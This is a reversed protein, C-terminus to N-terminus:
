PSGHGGFVWVPGAGKPDRVYDSVVDAHAEGGAHARLRVILEERSTAHVALREDAHSRRVALTHAVDDLPTSAGAGALWGALRAATAELADTSRASLLFTRRREPDLARVQSAIAPAQEVIAHANTGGVGYSCVAAIRPGDQLPWATTETPVFLRGASAEIAAPLKTFHLSAPVEGRHVALVAKLLGVMGAASETHGVNTKVSGLACHGDGDGYVTTLSTLEVLDGARTGTGHAEIMGVTAPDVDARRLAARFVDQQAQGSPLTFRSSNGDHNVATGRLVALIRDGDRQADQLRKLVIVVAGEARVYGDAEHDFSRCQGSPSLVGTENFAALVRPSLLLNVAGALAMDCEGLQLSQCALHAAVLGSSCATDLAMSPGSLGLAHSVRGAATAFANGTMLYPGGGAALRTAYAAHDPNSMGAYVGTHSGALESTPLGAHECAEWAVELLLRHQPDMLEAEEHSIGFFEADFAGVDGDLFGGVWRPPRSSAERELAILEGANWRNAPAEGVADGGSRLLEWLADASDVGGPLRCAVGTVAISTARPTSATRAERDEHRERHPTGTTM